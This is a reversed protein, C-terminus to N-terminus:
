KKYHPPNSATGTSKQNSRSTMRESGTITTAGYDNKQADAASYFTFASGKPAKHTRKHQINPPKPAKHPNYYQFDTTYFQFNPSM